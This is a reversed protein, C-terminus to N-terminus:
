LNYYNRGDGSCANWSDKEQDHSIAQCLAFLNHPLSKPLIRNSCGFIKLEVSAIVVTFRWSTLYPYMMPMM